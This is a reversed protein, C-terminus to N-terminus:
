TEEGSTLPHFLVIKKALFNYVLVIVSSAIKSWYLYEEGFTTVLTFMLLESLALGLVVITLFIPFEIKVTEIRRYSFVWQTNLVYSVCLGVSFGIANSWLYHLGLLETCAALTAFDAGFALSGALIYRVIETRQFLRALSNM